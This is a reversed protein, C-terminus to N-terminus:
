YSATRKRKYVRPKSHGWSVGKAYNLRFGTHKKYSGPPRRLDRNTQRTRKQQSARKMRRNATGNILPMRKSGTLRRNGDAALHAMGMPDVRASTLHRAVQDMHAQNNPAPAAMEEHLSDQKPVLEINTFFEVRLIAASAAAGLTGIVTYPFVRTLETTALTMPQFQPVTM